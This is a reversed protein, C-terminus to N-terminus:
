HLLRAGSVGSSRENPVLIKSITGSKPCFRYYYRHESPQRPVGLPLMGEPPDRDPIGMSSIAPFEWGGQYKRVGAITPCDFGFFAHPDAEAPIHGERVWQRRVREPIGHSTFFPLRDTPRGTLCNLFRIRHNM